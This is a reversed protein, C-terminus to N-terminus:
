QLLNKSIVNAMAVLDERDWKLENKILADVDEKMHATSKTGILPSGGLEMTFSYLLVQPSVGMKGSIRKVVDNKRVRGGASGTLIWFLQNAAGWEKFLPRLNVDYGRNSHFRNQVIAPKVRADSRLKTLYDKEHVSVIGLHRVIGRDVFEELVRWARLTEDYPELKARFNHVLVADLYTTQLNRLSSRVSLRVQDEVSLDPAPPCSGEDTLQCNQTGYGNVSRALFLTQLYLEDRRVGSEKWGVGVGTENYENHFGGTAIHRFGSQIAEKVLKATNEGKSKAGYIIRGMLARKIPPLKIQVPKQDIVVTGRTGGRRLVQDGNIAVVGTRVGLSIGLCLLSAVVTIRARNRDVASKKNGKSAEDDRPHSDPARGADGSPRSQRARLLPM